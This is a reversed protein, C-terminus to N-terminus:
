INMYKYVLRPLVPCYGFGGWIWGPNLFFIEFGDWVLKNFNFKMGNPVPRSLYGLFGTGNGDRIRVRNGRQMNKFGKTFDFLCDQNSQSIWRHSNVSRYRRHAHSWLLRRIPPSLVTKIFLVWREM